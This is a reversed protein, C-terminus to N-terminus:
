HAFTRESTLAALLISINQEQLIGISPLIISHELHLSHYWKPRDSPHEMCHAHTLNHKAQVEDHLHHFQIRISKM